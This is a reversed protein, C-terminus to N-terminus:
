LTNYKELDEAQPYIKSIDEIVCDNKSIFLTCTSDWAVLEIESLPHQLTIPNEWFGTYGDAYPLPYKLIDELTINEPFGSLVGWIWLFDETHLIEKLKKGSLWVYNETFTEFLEKDSPCCVPYSILWNYKESLVNINDFVRGFLSFGKEGKDLIIGKM